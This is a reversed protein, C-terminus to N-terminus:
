GIEDKGGEIITFKSKKSTPEKAKALAEEFVEEWRVDGQFIEDRNILLDYTATDTRLWWPNFKIHPDDWWTEKDPLLVSLEPSDNSITYRINGGLESSLRVFQIDLDNGVIAVLKSYIMAAITQDNLFEHVMFWNNVLKHDEKDYDKKTIIVCDKMLVEFFLEVKELAIDHLVQNPTSTFFGVEIHYRNILLLDDAYVICNVDTYWVHPELYSM